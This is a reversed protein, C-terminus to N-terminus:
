INMCINKYHLKSKNSVSCYKETGSLFSCKKIFEYLFIYLNKLNSLNIQFLATGNILFDLLSENIPFFNFFIFQDWNDSFLFAM